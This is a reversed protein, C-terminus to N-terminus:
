WWVPGCYISASGIMFVANCAQGNPDFIGLGVNTLKWCRNVAELGGENQVFQQYAPLNPMIKFQCMNWFQRETMQGNRFNLLAQSAQSQTMGSAVLAAIIEDVGSFSIEFGGGGPCTRGLRIGSFFAGPRVIGDGLNISCFNSISNITGPPCGTYLEGPQLPPPTFNGMTFVGAMYGKKLADNPVGNWTKAIIGGVEHVLVGSANASYFLTQIYTNIQTAPVGATQLITILEAESFTFTPTTGGTSSRFVISFHMGADGPANMAGQDMLAIGSNPGNNDSRDITTSAGVAAESAAQTTQLDQEKNCATLLCALLISLFLPFINKQM